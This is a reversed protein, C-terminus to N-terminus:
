NDLYIDDEEDISASIAEEDLKELDVDELDSKYIM